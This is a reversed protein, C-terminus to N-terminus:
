DHAAALTSRNVSRSAADTRRAVQRYLKLSETAVLVPDLRDAVSKRAAAGIEALRPRDNLMDLIADALDASIIRGTVQDQILALAGFTPSSLVPMGLAMAEAIVYPFNEFRSSCLYLSSQLRLKQIADAALKGMFQVQPPAAVSEGPGVILLKLSPRRELAKTFAQIALDVGKVHDVRGVFLIQDPDANAVNWQANPLPIPNPIVRAMRAHAGRDKMADLLAQTPSTVASVAGFANLEARARGQDVEGDNVFCHPGHLRMVMPVGKLRGAWGHSEEIEFLDVGASRAAAFANLVHVRVWGNSGDARRLSEMFVKLKSPSPIRAIQGDCEIYETTVVVVSHGLLRLANRMIRVYTVIGNTEGSDPLAPSYFGIRLPQEADHNTM